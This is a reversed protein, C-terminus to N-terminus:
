YGHVQPDWGFVDVMVQRDLLRAAYRLTQERKSANPYRLRIGTMALQAGAVLLGALIEAKKGESMARLMEFQLRDAAETTDSAQPRYGAM